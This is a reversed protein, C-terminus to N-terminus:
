MPRFQPIWCPSICKELGEEGERLARLIVIVQKLKTDFFCTSGKKIFQNFLSRLFIGGMSGM